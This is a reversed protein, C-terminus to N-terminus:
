LRIMDKDTCCDVEFQITSHTIGFRRSLVTEIDQCIRTTDSVKMDRVDVHGELYVTKEDSRWVHVHHVNAVGDIAEFSKKLEDYDIDPASQMLIDVADKVIHWTERIIYIGILATIVPDIWVVNWLKIAAGGLIVGVSSVSDSVLHLYSSRVNMNDASGKRLLFASIVNAALGIVAVSLMLTGDIKEPSRLRKYAEVLLFVSLVLLVSANVFAALVEARKYGYTKKRNRPKKAIGMAAWSTGIAVTDSLNHLSDSLLALSGSLIGGVVEAVTIVLNLALVFAMRVGSLGEVGHDHKHGPEHSHGLHDEM